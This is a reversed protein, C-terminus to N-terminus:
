SFPLSSGGLHVNSRICRVPSPLDIIRRRVIGILSHANAFSAGKQHDQCQFSARFSVPDTTIVCGSVLLYTGTKIKKREDKNKMRDSMSSEIDNEAYWIDYHEVSQRANEDSGSRVKLKYYTSLHAKSSIHTLLHSLDSFTPTTPCISCVLPVNKTQALSSSAPALLDM